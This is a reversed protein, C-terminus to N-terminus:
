GAQGQRLLEELEQAFISLQGPSLKESSSGFKDRLLNQLRQKLCLIDDDNSDILRQLELIRWQCSEIDGPLVMSNNELM